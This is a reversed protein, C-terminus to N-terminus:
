HSTAWASAATSYAGAMTQLARDVAAADLDRPRVAGIVALIPELVDRNKRTTKASRGPLGGALWDDAARRL